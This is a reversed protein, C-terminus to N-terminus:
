DKRSLEAEIAAIRKLAAALEKELKDIRRKLLATTISVM